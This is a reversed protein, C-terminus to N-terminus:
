AAVEAAKSNSGAVYGGVTTRFSVALRNWGNITIIAVTLAILEEESFATRADAFVEDPVGTQAILTLADTWALAARERETFFPAEHWVAVAHLRQETEGALMADKTHMDVCYACGNLISARLYVLHRLAPEIGSRRSQQELGLLAYLASPAVRSVDLRETPQTTSSETRGSARAGPSTTISQM